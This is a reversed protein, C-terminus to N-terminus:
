RLVRGGPVDPMFRRFFERQEPPVRGEGEPRADRAVATVNVVAPGVAEVLHTFDPLNRLAVPTPAAALAAAMVTRPQPPREPCGVLALGVTVFLAALSPRVLLKMPCGDGLGRCGRAFSAGARAPVCSAAESAALFASAPVMRM